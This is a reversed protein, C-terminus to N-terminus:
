RAMCETSHPLSISAKETVIAQGACTYIHKSSQGCFRFFLLAIFRIFSCSLPFSFRYRSRYPVFTSEKAAKNLLM